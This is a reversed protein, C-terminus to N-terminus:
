DDIGLVVVRGTAPSLYVRATWQPSSFAHDLHPGGVLDGAPVLERLPAAVAVPPSVPGADYRRAWAAAQRPGADVVADFWHDTPGPVRASTSDGLTGAAWGDVPAGALLPFRAAVPATDRSPGATVVKAQGATQGVTSEPTGAIRDGPATSTCGCLVVALSLGAVAAAPGLRRFRYASM